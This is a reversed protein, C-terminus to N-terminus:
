PSPFFSSPNSSLPFISFMWVVANNLDALINLLTGSVQLFEGDSLSWHFVVLERLQSFRALLIIIIIIIIIIYIYLPGVINKPCKSFLVQLYTTSSHFDVVQTIM